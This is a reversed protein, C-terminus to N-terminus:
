KIHKKIEEAITEDTLKAYAQETQRISSHGLVRSVVAIPVGANLLMYGCTRRGDHSTIAKDIDAAEAIMKLRANYKQNPMKPLLYNYRELINRADPTLVFTFLIGTKGRYGSFVAYDKANRCQNFDYVMLDAYGLGTFVQILFLDRAERLSQLRLKANRIMKVEAPTLFKDIRSSGKDIKIRGTIYPNSSVYGDIIADAIFAKLNKHFSGISAQSYSRTVEKFYKDKEKWTYKHLWEDFAMINKVNIDSFRRIKGYEALKSYFVGHAKRTNYKVNREQMRKVIYELFSIEVKEAFLLKPVADLDFKNEDLMDNIVKYAKRKLDTLTRNIEMAEPVNKVEGVGDWENPYVTIGTSIYKQKGKYYIRLDINGKTDKDSKNKRDYVFSIKPIIM